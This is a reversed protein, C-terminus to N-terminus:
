AGAIFGVNIAYKPSIRQAVSTFQQTREVSRFCHGTSQLSQLIECKKLGSNEVQGMDGLAGLITLIKNLATPEGGPAKAAARVHVRKDAAIQRNEKGLFPEAIEM